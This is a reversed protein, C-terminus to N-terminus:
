PIACVGESCEADEADPGPPTFGPCKLANLNFTMGDCSLVAEEKENPTIIGLVAGSADRFTYAAAAIDLTSSHCIGGGSKYTTFKVESSAELSEKVGNAHCTRNFPKEPDSSIEEVCAGSPMCSGVTALFKALCPTSCPGSPSPAADAATTGGDQVVGDDKDEDDCASSLLVASLGFCLVAIKRVSFPSIQDFM